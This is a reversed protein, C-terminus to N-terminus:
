PVRGSAAVGLGVLLASAALRWSVREGLLAASLGVGFIPTTMFLPGMGGPRYDRLLYTLVVYNFGAIIVGQYAVSAVLVPTVRIAELGEWVLSSAFFGPVSFWAQAVLLAMPPVRRLVLSTAVMRVGLVLASASVLLDGALTAGASAEPRAFLLLLGGYALACGGAKRWTLRDGPIVFHALLVMHLSYVNTLVSAHGASTWSAGFNQLAVQGLFLGGLVGTALRTGRPPRVPLGRWRAWAYVSIGGLGYRLWGMALPPADALGAKLAVAQGGWLFSLLLIVLGARLDLDKQSHEM